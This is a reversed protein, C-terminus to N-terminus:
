PYIILLRTWLSMEGNKKKDFVKDKFMDVENIFDLYEKKTSNDTSPTTSNVESNHEIKSIEKESQNKKSFIEKKDMDKKSIIGKESVINENKLKNKETEGM